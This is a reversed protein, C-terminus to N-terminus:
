TGTSSVASASNFFFHRGIFPIINEKSKKKEESPHSAHVCGVPSMCCRCRAPFLGVLSGLVALKKIRGHKIASLSFFLLSIFLFCILRQEEALQPSISIYTSIIIVKRPIHHRKDSEKRTRRCIISLIRNSFPRKQRTSM